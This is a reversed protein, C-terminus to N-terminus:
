SCFSSGFENVVHFARELAKRISYKGDSLVVFKFKLLLMVEKLPLAEVM